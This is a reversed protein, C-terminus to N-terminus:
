PCATELLHNIKLILEEGKVPKSIYDTCGADIAKERDGTLAYATQAIIPIRKDFERIKRTAEYGDMTPMKIDMLIISVNPNEKLLDIIEKGTKARFVQHNQKSLVAQLYFYSADDDEAILITRQASENRPTTENENGASVPSPKAPIYQITFRIETGKGLESEAHITGGLMETYAKAISLGLGSGEYPRTIEVDAQVFRDFIVDIKDPPIGMGTDKVYFFLLDGNLQTGFEVSGQNTFKLSNKILNSFISILKDKDTIVTFKQGEFDSKASIVLGKHEAEVRFFSLLYDMVEKIELEKYHISSQGAEIKSIEIIDNITNLLRGSSSKIIDLYLQHQEDSLGSNQLLDIFGLIGNMPTRIEHSMNALFASKLRDSEEAKEKAFYLEREITKRETIDSIIHVAGLLEKKEDFIPDVLIELIRDKLEMELKERKKSGKMRLFPCNVIPCNTGHLHHFCHGSKLDEGSLELFERFVQNSQIIKMESDILAIGDRMADFTKNWNESAQRIKEEAKKREQLEQRLETTREAVLKELRKKENKKEERGEKIKVMARIQAILESEDIPKALFAEGGAELARIRSEKDGKLATIFVVPIDQTQENKKILKCVAFGDMVPMVIDLLIVDPNEEVALEIGRRGSLATIVIALPFSEEILAKLTILNDQIDDIALIKIIRNEM